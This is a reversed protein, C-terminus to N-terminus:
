FVPKYYMFICVVAVLFVILWFGIIWLDFNWFSEHSIEDGCVFEKTGDSYELDFCSSLNIDRLGYQPDFWDTTIQRYIRDGPTLGDVHLRFGTPQHIYKGDATKKSLYVTIYEITKDTTNEFEIDYQWPMTSPFIKGCNILKIKGM